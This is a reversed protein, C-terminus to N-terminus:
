ESGPPLDIGAAAVSRRLGEGVLFGALALPLGGVVAVATAFALAEPLSVVQPGLFPDTYRTGYRTVALGFVPAMVLLATPVLGSNAAAHLAGIGVLVVVWAFVIAHPDTGNWTGAVWREIPPYGTTTAVWWAVAPAVVAALLTTAVSVGARRGVLLTRVPGVIATKAPGGLAGRAWGFAAGLTAETWRGAAGANAKLGSLMRAMRAFLGIVTGPIGRARSRVVDREVM